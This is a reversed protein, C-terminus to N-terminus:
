IEVLIMNFNTSNIAGTTAVSLKGITASGDNNFAINTGITIKEASTTGDITVNGSVLKSGSITWGAITGATATINGTLTLNGTADIGFNTSSIAGTSLVSLKGLTASGDNNLAINTGITIKQASSTADLTISGATLKSSTLTWGGISGGTATLNSSTLTGTLFANGSADISFNTSSIAGTSAISLKGLTASGDNNLIVNTGIAIKQSGSTSNLTINGSTLTNAGLTWGGITGATATVTGSINASTATIKGTTDMNFNTSAITGTSSLILSGGTLTTSGLTWGGIIGGTATINGTTITGSINANTATIKGTSDTSFNTSTITGTSSLTLSGASISNSNITWGGITGGTATLSSTTLSGSLTANTATVKGTTDVNFNTSSISGNSNLVLSGGTISSAGISWGGITGSTATINGTITANQAVLAGTLDVTFKGSAVNIGSTSSLSIQNTAGLTLIGTNNLSINGASLSTSGITWGGINGSTATVGTSNLLFGTGSLGTSNLVFSGASNTISGTGNVTLGSSNITVGNTSTGFYGSVSKVTGTLTANSANLNGSSDVSFNSGLTISGQSLNIGNADIISSGAKLGYKGTQYQGMIVQPTTGDTVVVTGSQVKIGQTGTVNIGASGSVTMGTNDITVNGGEIVMSSSAVITGTKIATANISSPTMAVTGDNLTVSVAGKTITLGNSDVQVYKTNDVNDYAKLNGASDLVIKGNNASLTSSGLIWGGINGTKATLNGAGNVAFNGGGLSISSSTGNITLGTSNLTADIWWKRYNNLM